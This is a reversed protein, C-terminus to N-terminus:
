RKVDDTQYLPPEVSNLCSTLLKDLENWITGNLYVDMQQNDDQYFPVLDPMSEQQQFSTGVSTLPPSTYILPVLDAPEPIYPVAPSDFSKQLACSSPVEAQPDQTELDLSLIGLRSLLGVISLLRRHLQASSNSSSSYASSLDLAEKLPNCVDQTLCIPPGESANNPHGRYTIILLILSTASTLFHSFFPHQKRYSETTANLDRIASITRIAIQLSASVKEQDPKVVSESFFLPRLLLIRMQNARLYLLTRVSDPPEREIMHLGPPGVLSELASQQWRDIQYNLFQFQEAEYVQTSVPMKSTASVIKTSIACYSAMARLYPSDQQHVLVNTRSFNYNKTKRILAGVPVLQTSDLAADDMNRPLGLAASWGHDLVFISWM